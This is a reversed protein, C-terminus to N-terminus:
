KVRIPNEISYEPHADLWARIDTWRLGHFGFQGDWVRGYIENSELSFRHALEPPAFQIGKDELYTRHIVCQVWDENEAYKGHVAPDGLDIYSDSATLELLRKSRISFGGNGTVLEGDVSFPAGIYDYALFEDTWAAPNLIFGDHQIVLAFETTVYDTLRKLIFRSYEAISDVSPISVIDPRDSPLSTLLKVEAFSFDKCCIDAAQALREINVCDLGVLTVNSLTRM